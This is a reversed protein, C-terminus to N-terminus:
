NLCLHSMPKMTYKVREYKLKMHGYLKNKDAIIDRNTFYLFDENINLKNAIKNFTDGTKVQYVCKEFAKCPGIEMYFFMEGPVLMKPDATITVKNRTYRMLNPNMRHKYAISEITDGNEVVYYCTYSLRM